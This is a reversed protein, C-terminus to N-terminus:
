RDERTMIDGQVGSPFPREEDQMSQLVSLIKDSYNKILEPKMGLSKNMAAEQAIKTIQEFASQPTVTEYMESLAKALEEKIVQKLRTQTIKM